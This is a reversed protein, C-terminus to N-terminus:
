RDVSMEVVQYCGEAGLRKWESHAVHTYPLCPLRHGAGPRFSLPKWCKIEVNGSSSGKSPAAGEAWALDTGTRAQLRHPAQGRSLVPLRLLQPAMHFNHGSPPEM